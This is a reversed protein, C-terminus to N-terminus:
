RLQNPKRDPHKLWYDECFDLLDVAFVYSNCIPGKDGFAQVTFLARCFEAGTTGGIVPIVGIPCVAAGSYSPMGIGIGLSKVNAGGSGAITVDGM